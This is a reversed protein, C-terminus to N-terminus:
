LHIIGNDLEWHHNRCLIAINEMGSIEQLTSKDDFDSIPRFHCYEVHLDYGCISCRKERDKNFKRAAYRIESNLWSPHVESNQYKKRFEGLTKEQYNERQLKKEIKCRSCFKSNTEKLFFLDGCEQCPRKKAKRKPIKNHIIAACSRSCFKKNKTEKECNQCKMDDYVRPKRFRQFTLQICTPEFGM